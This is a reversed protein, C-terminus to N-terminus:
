NLGEAFKGQGICLLLALPAFDVVGSQAEVSKTAGDESFFLRHRVPSVFIGQKSGADPNRKGIDGVGVQITIPM